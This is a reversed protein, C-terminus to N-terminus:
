CFFIRLVGEICDDIYMFSRTQEGDRWVDIAEKNNLKAEAIKRSIASPAKERGGAYTEILGYVNHLRLIRVDLNFDELFHSCMREIFLKKWGYGDEPDGPYTDDEKLGPIKTNKQKTASYLCASLTFFYREINNIRSAELLNTNILVSLM